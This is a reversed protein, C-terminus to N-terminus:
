TPIPSKHDIPNWPKGTKNFPGKENAVYAYWPYVRMKEIMRNMFLRLAIYGVKDKGPVLRNRMSNALFKDLRRGSSVKHNVKLLKKYKVPDILGTAKNYSEALLWGSQWGPEIGAGLIPHALGIADGVGVFEIDPYQSITNSVKYKWKSIPLPLGWGEPKVKDAPIITDYKEKLLDLFLYYRKNILEPAGLGGLGVNIHGNSGPFLWGYGVQKNDLIILSADPYSAGEKVVGDFRIIPAFDSKKWHQDMLKRTLGSYGTAVITQPTFFEKDDVSVRKEIFKIGTKKAITVLKNQLDYRSTVIFPSDSSVYRGSWLGTRLEPAHHDEDLTIQFEHKLYEYFEVSIAGGCPKNWIKPEYINIDLEPNKRQLYIASAIGSINGGLISIEQRSTM